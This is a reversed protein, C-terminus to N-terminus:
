LWTKRRKYHVYNMISISFRLSQKGSIQCWVLEYKIWHKLFRKESLFAITFWVELFYNMWVSGCTKWCHDNHGHLKVEYVVCVASTKWQWIVYRFYHIDVAAHSLVALPLNAKYEKEVNFDHCNMIWKCGPMGCKGGNEKEMKEVM